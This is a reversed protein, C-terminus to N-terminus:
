AAANVITYYLRIEATVPTPDTDRSPNVAWIKQVGGGTPAEVMMMREVTIPSATIPSATPDDEFWLYIPTTTEILLYKTKRGYPAVTAIVDSVDLIKLPTDGTWAAASGPAIYKRDKDDTSTSQDTFNIERDVSANSDADETFTVRFKHNVIAM